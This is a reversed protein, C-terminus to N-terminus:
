DVQWDPERKEAFARAGEIANPNSVIEAGAENNVKWAESEPLDLSQLAVRKSIRVANPANRCILEALAVAEDVVKARPVVRNVLGLEHARQATIPEGTMILELATAKPLLKPLRIVGGALAMLGRKVEPIGFAAEEAAVVLDCSLVIEFGGAFAPGNVAAILPKSFTRQTFGGFGHPGSIGGGEGSAFAKLDMGASFAKDGAGTVVVAWVDRDAELEDFAVDVAETVASNIANRAEPRNITLVEVRGRRERLIVDSM